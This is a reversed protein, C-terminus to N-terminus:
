SSASMALAQTQIGAYRAYWGRGFYTWTPLSRWFGLRLSCVRRILDPRVTVRQLAGLTELGFVGAVDVYLAAQLIKNARVLGSNVCEDFQCLDLGPFLEDCRALNWYDVRYIDQCEPDTMRRVGQTPFGKSIRYADYARQTVGSYTAGGPDHPNNSFQHWGEYKEMTAFCAPFNAATM